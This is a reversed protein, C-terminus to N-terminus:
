HLPKLRQEYFYSDEKSKQCKSFLPVLSPRKYFCLLMLCVKFILPYGYKKIDNAKYM